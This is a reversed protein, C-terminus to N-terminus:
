PLDLKKNEKEKLNDTNPTQGSIFVLKRLTSFIDKFVM